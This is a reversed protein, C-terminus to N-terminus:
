GKREPSAAAGVPLAVAGGHKKELVAETISGPADSSSLVAGNGKDVALFVINGPAKFQPPEDKDPRSDIYARMFDVWIPLAALLGLVASVGRRMRVRLRTVTM